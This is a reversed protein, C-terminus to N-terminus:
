RRTAAKQRVGVPIEVGGAQGATGFAGKPGTAGKAGTAGQEGPGFGQELRSVTPSDPAGEGFPGPETRRQRALYAGWADGGPSRPRARRRVGESREAGAGASM